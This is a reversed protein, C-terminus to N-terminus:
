RGASSAGRETEPPTPAGPSRPAPSSPKAPQGKGPEYGICGKVVQACAADEAGMVDNAGAYAVESVRGGAFRMQARCDTTSNQSFSPGPIPVLLTQLTPLTVSTGGASSREYSWIEVDGEMVTKTPFGACMRLEAKSLGVIDVRGEAADRADAIACGALPALVPFLFLARSIFRM